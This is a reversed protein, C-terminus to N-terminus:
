ERGGKEGRLPSLLPALPSLLPCYSAPPLAKWGVMLSDGGWRTIDSSIKFNMVPTYLAVPFIMSNAPYSTLGPPARMIQWAFAKQRAPLGPPVGGRSIHLAGKAKKVHHAHPVASGHGEQCITRAGVQFPLNVFAIQGHISPKSFFFDV